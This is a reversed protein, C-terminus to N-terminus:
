KGWHKSSIAMKLSLYFEKKIISSMKLVIVKNWTHLMYQAIQARLKVHM